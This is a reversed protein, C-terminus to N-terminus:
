IQITKEKHQTVRLGQEVKEYFPQQTELATRLIHIALVDGVWCGFLVIRDAVSRALFLTSTLCQGRVVCQTYPNTLQSTLSRGLPFQTHTHPASTVITALARYFVLMQAVTYVHAVTFTCEHVNISLYM